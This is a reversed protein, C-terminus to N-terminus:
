LSINTFKVKLNNSVEYVSGVDVAAADASAVFYCNMVHVTYNHDFQLTHNEPRPVVSTYSIEKVSFETGPHWWQNSSRVTEVHVMTYKCSLEDVTILFNGWFIGVNDYFGINIFKIYVTYSTQAFILSLGGGYHKSHSIGFMIESDNIHSSVRKVSFNSKDKFVFVCNPRNGVFSAQNLTLDFGNVTLMGAGKSNHVHTHLLSVNSVHLLFLTTSNPASLNDDGMAGEPTPAGCGSFNLKSIKLNQVKMAFVSFESMCHIVSSQQDSVGTLTVNDVDKVILSKSTPFILVHNGPLFKLMTNSEVRHHYSIFEQLTLCPEAPCQRDSSNTKIFITEFTCSLKLVTAFLVTAFLSSTVYM